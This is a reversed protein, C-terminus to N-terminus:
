VFVLFPYQPYGVVLCVYSVIQALFEATYYHVVLDSFSVSGSELSFWTGM